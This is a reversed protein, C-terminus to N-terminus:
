WGTMKGDDNYEYFSHPEGCCSCGEDLHSEGTVDECEAIAMKYSLGHRKAETALAGLFRDSGRDRFLGEPKNKVWEVEWGAAELDKWNQETLWWNGGSNNSSYRIYGM